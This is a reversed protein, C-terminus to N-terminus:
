AGAVLFVACALMKAILTRRSSAIRDATLAQKAAYPSLM